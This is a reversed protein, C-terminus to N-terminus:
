LLEMENTAQCVDKEPESSENQYSNYGNLEHSEDAKLDVNEIVSDKVVKFRPLISSNIISNEVQELGTAMIEGKLESNKITLHPSDNLISKGLTMQLGDLLSNNISIPYGGENGPALVIETDGKIMSNSINVSGKTKVNFADDHALEITTNKLSCLIQTSEDEDYGMKDCYETPGYRILTYMPDKDDCSVNLNEIDSNSITVKGGFSINKLKSHRIKSYLLELDKKGDNEISTNILNCDQLISISKKGNSLFVDIFNFTTDRNSIIDLNSNSTLNKFNLFAKNREDGSYKLSGNVKNAGSIQLQSSYALFLGNVRLYSCEDKGDDLFTINSNGLDVSQTASGIKYYNKKTLKKSSPIIINAGSTNLSGDGFEFGIHLPGKDGNLESNIFVGVSLQYLTISSYGNKSNAKIHINVEGDPNYINNIGYLSINKFYPSKNELDINTKAPKMNIFSFSECEIFDSKVNIDFPENYNQVLFYSGIKMTLPKAGKIYTVPTLTIEEIEDIDKTSSVDLIIKKGFILPTRKKEGDDIILARHILAKSEEEKPDQEMLMNFFEEAIYGCHEDIKNRVSYLEQGDVIEPIFKVVRDNRYSSKNVLTITKPELM